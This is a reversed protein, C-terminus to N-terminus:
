SAKQFHLCSLSIEDTPYDMALVLLLVAFCPDPLKLWVKLVTHFLGDWSAKLINHQFPFLILSSVMRIWLLM